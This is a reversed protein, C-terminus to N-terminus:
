GFCGMRNQFRLYQINIEWGWCFIGDAILYFDEVAVEVFISCRILSWWCVGDVCCPFIEVVTLGLGSQWVRVLWEGIGVIVFTPIFRMVGASAALSEFAVTRM